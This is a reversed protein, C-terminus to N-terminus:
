KYSISYRKIILSINQRTTKYKTALQQQTTQGSLYSTVIDKDRDNAGTLMPVRRLCRNVNTTSEEPLTLHMRKCLHSFAVGVANNSISEQKYRKIFEQKTMQVTNAAILLEEITHNGVNWIKRVQRADATGTKLRKLKKYLSCQMALPNKGIYYQRVFDKMSMNGSVVNSKLLEDLTQGNLNWVNSQNM